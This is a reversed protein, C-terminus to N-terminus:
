KMLQKEEIKERKDMLKISLYLLIGGMAAILWFIWNFAIESFYAHFKAGFESYALYVYGVNFFLHFLISYIIRKTKFYISGAVLGMLFTPLLNNYDPLHIASFLLSSIILSIWFNYKELLKSFLFRRFFLEEFLPAIIVLRLIFIFSYLSNLDKWSRAQCTGFATKGVKLYEYIYFLPKEFFYFGIFILITCVLIDFNIKTEEKIKFSTQKFIYYTWFGYFALHLFLQAGFIPYSDSRNFLYSSSFFIPFDILITSAQFLATLLFAKGINM